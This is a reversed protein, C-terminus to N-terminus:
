LPVGVSEALKAVRGFAETECIVPKSNAFDRWTLTNNQHVGDVATEAIANSGHILPM